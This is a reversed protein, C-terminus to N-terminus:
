NACKGTKLMVVNDVIALKGETKLERVAARVEDRTLGTKPLLVDAEKNTMRCKNAEVAAFGSRSPVLSLTDFMRSVPTKQTFM